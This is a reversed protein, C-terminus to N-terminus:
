RLIGYTSRIKEILRDHKLVIRKSRHVCEHITTNYRKIAAM